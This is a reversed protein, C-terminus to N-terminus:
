HEIFAVGRNHKKHYPAFCFKCKECSAIKGTQQPCHIANTTTSGKRAVVVAERLTDPPVEGADITEQDTSAFITCNPLANLFELPAIFDPDRWQKTYAYFTVEPNQIIIHGIAQLYELSYFDGSVHLRVVAYGRKVWKALETNFNAVFDPNNRTAALNSWWAKRVNPYQKYSKLAYCFKTCLDTKNPCTTIPTISWNLLKGLKKNGKSLTIM